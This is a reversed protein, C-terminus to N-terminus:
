LLAKIQQGATLVGLYFFLGYVYLPSHWLDKLTQMKGTLKKREEIAEPSNTEKILENLAVIEKSPMATQVYAIVLSIIVPLCFAAAINPNDFGLSAFGLTFSILGLVHNLYQYLELTEQNYKEVNVLDTM